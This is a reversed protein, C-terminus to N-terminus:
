YDSVAPSFGQLEMVAKSREAKTRSESIIATDVLCFNVQSCQMQRAQSHLCQLPPTYPHPQDWLSAVSLKDESVNFSVNLTFASVVVVWPYTRTCKMSFDIITALKSYLIFAVFIVLLFIGRLVVASNWCPSSLIQLVECRMAGHQRSMASLVGILDKLEEHLKPFIQLNRTSYTWAWQCWWYIFLAEPTRSSRRTRM